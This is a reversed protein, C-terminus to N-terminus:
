TTAWTLLVDISVSPSRYDSFGERLTTRFARFASVNRATEAGMASSLALKTMQSALNRLLGHQERSPAGYVVDVEPTLASLLTNIEARPAAPRRGDHRHGRAEGISSWVTFRQASWLEQEVFAGVRSDESSLSEIVSWSADGGCDEVFIM